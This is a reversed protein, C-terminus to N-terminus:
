KFKGSKWKNRCEELLLPSAICIENSGADILMQVTFGASAISEDEKIIAYETNLRAGECWVLSAQVIFEEDLVLPKFYDIHFQVVPARLNAKYYDKFALGFRRGLEASGEEFYVPYRGHWVIGIIDVESFSVRKKVNVVLPDPSGPLHKFYGSKKRRM